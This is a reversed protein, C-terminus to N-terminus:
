VSLHYYRSYIGNGPTQTRSFQGALVSVDRGAFVQVDGSHDGRGGTGGNGIQAFSDVGNGAHIEVDGAAMVSTLDDARGQQGPASRGGHGIQAFQQSDDQDALFRGGQIRVHSGDSTGTQVAADNFGAHVTIDG